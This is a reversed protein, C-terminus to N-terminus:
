FLISGSSATGNLQRARWSIARDLTNAANKIVIVDVNTGDEPIGGQGALGSDWSSLTASYVVSESILNEAPRILHWSSPFRIMFGSYPDAYLSSVPPLPTIKPIRPTSAASPSPDPNGEDPPFSFSATGRARDSGVSGTELATRNGSCATLALMTSLLTVRIWPALGPRAGGSPAAPEAGAMGYGASSESGSRGLPGMGNANPPMEEPQHSM